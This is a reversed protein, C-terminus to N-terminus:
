PTLGSYKGAMPLAKISEIWDSNPSAKESSILHAHTSTYPAKDYSIIRPCFNYVVVVPRVGSACRWCLVFGLQLYYYFVGCWVENRVGDVYKKRLRGFILSVIRHVYKTQNRRSPRALRLVM